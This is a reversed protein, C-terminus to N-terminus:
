SVDSYCKNKLKKYKERGIEEGYKAIFNDISITKKANIELYKKIGEKKGLKDIFYELKCGAYSENICYEKWKKKGLKEGYRKIFNKETSAREANFANWQEDTWGRTEKMYEKSCTYSQRAIYANYKQKGKDEGFRMIFSKYSATDFKLREKNLEEDTIDFLLKFYFSPSVCRAPIKEEGNLIKKYWNSKRAKRAIDTIDKLEKFFCDWCIHRYFVKGSMTKGYFCWRDYETEIYYQRLKEKYKIIINGNKSKTVIISKLNDFDLLPKKCKRCFFDNESRDRLLFDKLSKDINPLKYINM